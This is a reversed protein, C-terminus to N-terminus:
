NELGFMAYDSIFGLVVINFRIFTVGKIQKKRLFKMGAFNVWERDRDDKLNKYVSMQWLWLLEMGWRIFSTYDENVLNIDLEEDVAM